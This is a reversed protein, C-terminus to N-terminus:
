RRREGTHNGVTLVVEIFVRRIMRFAAALIAVPHWWLAEISWVVKMSLHLQEPEILAKPQQTGLISLVGEEGRM